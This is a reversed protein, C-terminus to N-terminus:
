GRREVGVVVGRRDMTVWLPTNPMRCSFPVDHLPVEHPIGGDALGVGPLLTLRLHGPTLYAFVTAPVRRLRDAEPHDLLWPTVM